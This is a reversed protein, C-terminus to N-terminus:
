PPDGPLGAVIEETAAWLREALGADEGARSTDARDCDSFYVGTTAAVSPHTAVFVQTAAGQPITKMLLPALTSWTRQAVRGMHRTLNTPIVGPHVSNATQGAPLRTALHKAFLLNALKSQGYAGWPTYDREGSLDDLQIGEAPARKHATSSTMVVRGEPGLQDLLGTVLMFHGVHNTFFQQEIGHNQVLTPLAMIGANALIGDLPHGLAQVAAVAARVSAPQSLECAVPDTPGSVTACAAEAKALTRAAAIVRAGRLSLVRLTEAGIGSNCGTLLYTKGTLDLGATVQEATSDYGFGSPGKGRLIGILSM